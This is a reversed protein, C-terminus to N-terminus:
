DLHLSVAGSVVDTGVPGLQFKTAVQVVHGVIQQDTRDVDLVGGDVLDLVLQSSLITPQWIHSVVVLSVSRAPHYNTVLVISLSGASLVSGLLWSVQSSAGDDNLAKGSYVLSVQLLLAQQRQHKSVRM